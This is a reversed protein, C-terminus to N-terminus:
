AALEIFAYDARDPTVMAIAVAAAAVRRGPGSQDKRSRWRDRGDRHGTGDREPYRGESPEPRQLRWEPHLVAPPFSVRSRLGALREEARGAM